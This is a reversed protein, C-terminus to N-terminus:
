PEKEQCTNEKRRDVFVYVLKIICTAVGAAEEIACTVNKTQNPMLNHFADDKRNARGIIQWLGNGQRRRHLM